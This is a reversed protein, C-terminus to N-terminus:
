CFKMTLMLSYYYLLISYYLLIIIIYEELGWVIVIPKDNINNNNNNDNHIVNNNNINNTNIKAFSRKEYLSKYAANSLELTLVIPIKTEALSANLNPEVILSENFNKLRRDILDVPYLKVTSSWPVYM